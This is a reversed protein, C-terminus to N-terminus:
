PRPFDFIEAPNDVLVLNRTDEDPCAQYLLRLIQSESPPTMGKTYESPHPWDTGWLVREPSQALLIRALTQSEPFDPYSGGHYPASVKVWARGADLLRRVTQFAPHDPGGDVPINGRHDLVLRCPLSAIVHEMSVLSDCGMWLALHWGHDAALAATRQLTEANASGSRVMNLRVGCVRHGTLADLDRETPEPPLVVVAKSGEGLQDVADLTCANDTGYCSPTVIISRQLGLSDRMARYQAATAPPQHRTDDPSYPFREPDFVHHHSDCSGVPVALPPAAPPYPATVM